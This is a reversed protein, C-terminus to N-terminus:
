SLAQTPSFTPLVTPAWKLELRKLLSLEAQGCPGVGEGADRM